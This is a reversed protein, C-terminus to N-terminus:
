SVRLNLEVDSFRVRENHRKEPRWEEIIQSTESEQRTQNKATLRSGVKLCNHAARAPLQQNNESLQGKNSQKKRDISHSAFAQV